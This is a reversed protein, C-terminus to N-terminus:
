RSEGPTPKSWSGVAVHQGAAIAAACRASQARALAIATDLIADNVAQDKCVLFGGMATALASVVTAYMTRDDGNCMVEIAAARRGIAQVIDNHLLAVLANHDTSM